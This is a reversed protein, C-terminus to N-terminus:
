PRQFKLSTLGLVSMCHSVRMNEANQCQMKLVQPYAFPLCVFNGVLLLNFGHMSKLPDTRCLEVIVQQWDPGEQSHQDSDLAGKGEELLGLGRAQPLLVPQQKVHAGPCM